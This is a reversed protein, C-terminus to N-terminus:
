RAGRLRSLRTVLLCSRCGYAATDHSGIGALREPADLDARNRRLRMGRQGVVVPAVLERAEGGAAVLQGGGLAAEDFRLVALLTGEPCSSGQCQRIAGHELLDVERQRRAPHDGPVNEVVRTLRDDARRDAHRAQGVDVPSSLENRASSIAAVVAPLEPDEIEERRNSRGRWVRRAFRYAPRWGPIHGLRSDPCRTADSACCTRSLALSSSVPMTKGSRSSAFM